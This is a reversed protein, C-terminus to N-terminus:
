IGAERSTVLVSREVKSENPCIAQTMDQIVTDTEMLLNYNTLRETYM